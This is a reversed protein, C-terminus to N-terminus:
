SVSQCWMICQTCHNYCLCIVFPSGTALFDGTQDGTRAMETDLPQTLYQVGIQRVNSSRRRFQVTNDRSGVRASTSSLNILYWDSKLVKKPFIKGKFVIFTLLTSSSGHLLFLALTSVTKWTVAQMTSTMSVWKVKETYQTWKHLRKNFMLQLPM